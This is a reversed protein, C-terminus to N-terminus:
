KRKAIAQEIEDLHTRRHPYRELRVNQGVQRIQEVRVPDLESIMKDVERAKAVAFLANPRAPLALFIERTVENIIDTDIASYAVGKQKWLGILKMARIDWFALHALVASVTWGANLAMCLEDDTWSQLLTEMRNTELENAQNTQTWSNESM